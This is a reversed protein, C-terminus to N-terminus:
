SLFVLPIGGINKKLCDKNTLIGKNTSLFLTGTNRRTSWLINTRVNKATKKTSYIKLFNIVCKDDKFRTIITLKQNNKFFTFGQIFGEKYICRILPLSSKSVNSISISTKGQLASNKLASLIRYINGM